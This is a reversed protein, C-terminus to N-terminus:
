SCKKDVKFNSWNAVKSAGEAQADQEIEVKSIPPVEDQTEVKSIPPVETQSKQETEFNSIAPVQTQESTQIEM